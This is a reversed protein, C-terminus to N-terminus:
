KLLDYIEKLGDEDVDSFKGYRKIIPRAEAKLEETAAKFMDKVKDRLDEPYDSTEEEIEDTVDVEPDETVIEEEFVDDAVEEEIEPEPQPIPKAKKVKSKLTKSKEMGEEVVHIFEPAMNGKDFVMYEPVADTAFRGGADILTTGRFYLKRIEDTAYRKAKDGSGRVEINRDIVGTFTVDFIDGFASEYASVLNSTLQQYGEEELGGKEKITKFKTHAIGWVGIGASEIEDMYSKIMQAAYRQGAQYGGMAGNISKCKQGEKNSIKITEAEFLPVIEDVTDFCVIKIKHKVPVYEIKRKDDRVIKGNNDRKYMRQNILYEKLEMVDEYSTIRLTNVNDLMKTGKEAGCQVLLGCYPDGYKEIIVDRFLTSKGFKKISRLYISLNQIDPKIENIVPLQM